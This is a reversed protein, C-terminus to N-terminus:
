ETHSGILRTAVEELHLGRSAKLLITDGPQAARRLWDGAEGASPFELIDAAPLGADRAGAGIHTAEGGVTVLHGPVHEAVWQGLARHEPVSTEGLELMDGLVLWRRGPHDEVTEFAALAARMSVPNANYADNVVRLGGREEVQWRLGLRPVSVLRAALTEWPVGLGRAVAAALLTNIAQHRGPSALRLAVDVDTGSPAVHLREPESAEWTGNIDGNGSLSVSVVRGPCAQRLREYHAGEAELVAVGDPSLARLLDAKEEAIAEESGFFGIHASGVNTVVAWDPAVLRSLPAVEGPHNTGVEFVGYGVDPAMNLLSLPLGIDNNWNGRTRAVNAAEGLLHAILEKVTTKGASGTVGVMRPAVSQRYGGALKMLATQPSAVSLLPAGPPAGTNGQRDSAVLAGTAGDALAARVFEHGDVQEGKLAVFLCGPTVERSDHVVGRLTEPPAGQWAGGAWLAAESGSFCSTM